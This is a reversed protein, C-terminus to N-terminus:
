RRAQRRPRAGTRVRAHLGVRDVPAAVIRCGPRGWNLAAGRQDRKCGAADHVDRQLVRGVRDLPQPRHRTDDGRFRALSSLLFSILPVEPYLRPGRHSYREPKRARAEANSIAIQPAPFGCWRKAAPRESSIPTKVLSMLPVTSRAPTPTTPTVTTPPPFVCLTETRAPM